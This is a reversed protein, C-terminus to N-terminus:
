QLLSALRRIIPSSRLQKMSDREMQRIREGSLSLMRGVERLTRNRGDELGFRLRIARRHQESLIALADELCEYLEQQSLDTLDSQPRPDEILQANVQNNSRGMNDEPSGLRLPRRLLQIVHLLQKPPMGSAEALNDLSPQRLRDHSLGRALARVRVMSRLVCPSLRILGAHDGIARRMSRTIWWSAYTCFRGRPPFAVKRAAQM